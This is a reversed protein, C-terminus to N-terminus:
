GLVTTRDRAREAARVLAAQREVIGAVLDGHTVIAVSSM